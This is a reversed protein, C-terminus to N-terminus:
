RRARHPARDISGNRNDICPGTHDIPRVCVGYDQREADWWARACGRTRQAHQIRHLAIHWATAERRWKERDRLGIIIWAVVLITLIILFPLPEIVDPRIM